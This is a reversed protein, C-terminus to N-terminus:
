YNTVSNTGFPNAFLFHYLTYYSNIIILYKFIRLPRAHAHCKKTDVAFLAYLCCLFWTFSISILELHLHNNQWYNWVIILFSRLWLPDSPPQPLSVCFRCIYEIIDCCHFHSYVLTSGILDFWTLEIWDIWHAPQFQSYSSAIEYHSWQCLAPFNNEEM